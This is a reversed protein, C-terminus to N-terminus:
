TNIIFILGKKIAHPVNYYAITDQYNNGARHKQIKRPISCCGCVCDEDGCTCKFEDCGIKRFTTEVLYRTKIGLIRALCRGIKRRSWDEASWQYFGKGNQDPTSPCTSLLELIEKVVDQNKIVVDPEETSHGLKELCPRVYTCFDLIWETSYPDAVVHDKKYLYRATAIVSKRKLQDNSM